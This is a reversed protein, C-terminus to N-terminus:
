QLVCKPEAATAYMVRTCAATQEAFETRISTQEVVDHAVATLRGSADAGLQLRQITPTRYGTLEFMQQRTLAIKVPRGAARAALVALIAHPRTTGKSGFGGGVHRSIVRVLGAPMGLVRLAAGLSLIQLVPIAPYWKPAFLARIGPDAMAVQMLCLPVGVLALQRASRM